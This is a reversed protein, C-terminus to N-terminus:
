LVVLRSNAPLTVMVGSNITLNGDTDGVAISSKGAPITYNTTVVYDSIFFVHDNGGGTAGGDGVSGWAGNVYAEMASSDSNYRMYGNIPSIPRQATTGSPLHAAGTSSDKTVTNILNSKTTDSPHMHDDRSATTSIGATASGDMRPIASSLSINNTAITVDTITGNTIMSNAIANAVLNVNEVFTM